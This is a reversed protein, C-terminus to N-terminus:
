PTPEKGPVLFYGRKAFSAAFQDVNPGFYSVVSGKNPSGAYDGTISKIFDIRPGIVHGAAYKMVPQFWLASMSNLNLLTVAQDVTGATLERVLRAIFDRASGEGRGYPPNLWVNGTWPRTLELGSVEKTYFIEAGIWGNAFGNSAPDTTISGMAARADEIIYKPTYWEDSESCAYIYKSQWAVRDRADLSNLFALQGDSEQFVMAQLSREPHLMEWPLRPLDRARDIEGTAYGHALLWSIYPYLRDGHYTSEGPGCLHESFHAHLRKETEDGGRMVAVLKRGDGKHSSLRKGIKTSTGIYVNQAMDECFYVFEGKM